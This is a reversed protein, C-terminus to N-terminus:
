PLASAILEYSLGHFGYRRVGAEHLEWPLAFMQALDPQTRHCATDFCAV